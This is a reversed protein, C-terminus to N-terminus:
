HYMHPAFPGLVAVVAAWLSLLFLVVLIVGVWIAKWRSPPRNERSNETGPPQYPNLLMLNPRVPM